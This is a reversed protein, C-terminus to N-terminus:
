IPQFWWSTYLMYIYICIYINISACNHIDQSAIMPGGNERPHKVGTFGVPICFQHFVDQVQVVKPCIFGLLVVSPYLCHRYVQRGRIEKMM